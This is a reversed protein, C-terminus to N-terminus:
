VKRRVMAVMSLSVLLLAANVYISLTWDGTLDRLTGAIVPSLVAGIEAVLNWMGFAQAMMEPPALDATMTMHVTQMGAFPVGMMFLLGGLVLVDQGGMSIYIGLTAVLVAVLGCLSIYPWKGSGRARARDAILGGLPYGIANAVCFLAAYVAAGSLGVSAAESVVLLSWFAFFWLTYLIPIASIYMLVLNRDHLVPGSTRGLMVYIVFILGLAALTVLVAQALGSLGLEVTAMYTAMIVALFVASYALLRKAAPVIRGKETDVYRWVGYAVLLTPVSLIFFPVSWAVENGWIAAAWELVFPTGLTALTLGLSLGVFVVGMGMGRKEPPTVAHILARDNSYYAGEGLGTLVRAAVFASLTSALGTLFTAVGSWVASIVILPKRGYKDGLYGAPFQTLMYGAFFMGGIVGGLAHPMPAGAMFSVENEIMWSVVPGTVARDLYLMTWTLFLWLWVRRHRNWFGNRSSQPEENM